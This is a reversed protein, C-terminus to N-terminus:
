KVVRTNQNRFKIYQLDNLMAILKEKPMSNFTKITSVIEADSLNNFAKIMATIEKESFSNKAKLYSDIESEPLSYFNETLTALESEPLSDFKRMLSNLEAEPLAKVVSSFTDIGDLRKGRDNRAAKEVETAIFYILQFPSTVIDLALAILFLGLDGSNGLSATFCGTFTGAVMVLVLIVATSRSIKKM